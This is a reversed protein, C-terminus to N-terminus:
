CGAAAAYDGGVVDLGGVVGVFEAVDERGFFDVASERFVPVGAWKGVRLDAFDRHTVLFHHGKFGPDIARVGIFQPVSAPCRVAEDAQEREM